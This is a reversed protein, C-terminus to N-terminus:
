ETVPVVEDPHVAVAETVTETFLKGLKDILADEDVIQEPADVVSETEPADPKSQLVPSVEVLMITLGLTVVVYLTVPVLELPQEATVSIVMTTFSDGVTTTLAECDAIQAPADVVREALPAVLKIQFLPAVEDLM